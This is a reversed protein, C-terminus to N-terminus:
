DTAASISHIAKVFRVLVRQPCFVSLRKRNMQSNLKHKVAVSESKNSNSCDFNNVIIEEHLIINLAMFYTRMKKALEEFYICLVKSPM